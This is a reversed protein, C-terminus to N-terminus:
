NIVNLIKKFDHLNLLIRKLQTIPLATLPSITKYLKLYSPFDLILMATDFTNMIVFKDFTEDNVFKQLKLKSNINLMYQAEISARPYNDVEFRKLVKVYEKWASKANSLYFELRDILGVRTDECVVFDLTLIGLVDWSDMNYIYEYDVRTSKYNHVDFMGDYDILKFLNKSKNYTINGGHIDGHVFLNKHLISVATFMDNALKRCFPASVKGNKVMDILMDKISEGGYEFLYEMCYKSKYTKRADKAFYPNDRAFKIADKHPKFVYGEPCYGIKFDYLKTFYKQKNKPLEPLFHFFTMEKANLPEIIPTSFELVKNESIKARKLVYKKNDCEVLYADGNWGQGIKKVIKVNEILPALKKKVVEKGGTVNITGSEKYWLAIIVIAVFILVIVCITFELLKM